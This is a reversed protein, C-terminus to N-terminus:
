RRRRGHVPCPSSIIWVTNCICKLVPVTAMDLSRAAPSAHGRSRTQATAAIGAAGVTGKRAFALENNRLAIEQRHLWEDVRWVIARLTMLVRKKLWRKLQSEASM